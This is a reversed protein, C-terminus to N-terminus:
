KAVHERLRSAVEPSVRNARVLEDLLSQPLSFEQTEPIQKWFPVHKAKLMVWTRGKPNPLSALGTAPLSLLEYGQVAKIEPESIPENRYEYEVGQMVSYEAKSGPSEPGSCALLLGMCASLVVFRMINM